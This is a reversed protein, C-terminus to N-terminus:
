VEKWLVQDFCLSFLIHNLKLYKKLHAESSPGHVPGILESELYHKGLHSAIESLNFFFRNLTVSFFLLQQIPYKSHFFQVCVTSDVKFHYLFCNHPHCQIAFVQSIHRRQSSLSLGVTLAQLPGKSFEANGRCVRLCM